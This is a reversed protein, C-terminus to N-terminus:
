YHSKLDLGTAASDTMKQVMSRTALMAEHRKSPEDILEIIADRWPSEEYPLRIEGSDDSQGYASSASFIGAAGVRAVDIRKTASRSENITSPTLPVLMVDITRSSAEALYDSWTVPQRITVRDMGNWIGRSAGCAFVEFHAQPRRQLVEAIIPQLFYHEQVHIATAHYAIVVTQGPETNSTPATAQRTDWFAQPPAPPLLRPAAGKLTAALPATSTWIVDLHTNLRGLPRLAQIFLRLKYIFASEASTIVAPIDDDIFLGVGALQTANREIWDLTRSSAYRCVIVFTGSPDITELGAGGIDVTTYPPMGPASLRATFYYDATPNPHRGLLIIRKVQGRLRM